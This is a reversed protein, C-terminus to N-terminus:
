EEWFSKVKEFFEDFRNGLYSVDEKDMIAPVNFYRGQEDVGYLEGGGDCGIIVSDPLVKTVEYNDNVTQLEELPFLVLYTGGVDGEGGNHEHMFALYDEPLLVDNVAEVPIGRYPEAFVFEGFSEM